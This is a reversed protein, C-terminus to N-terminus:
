RSQRWLFLQISIPIIDENDSSLCLRPITDHHHILTNEFTSESIATQSRGKPM